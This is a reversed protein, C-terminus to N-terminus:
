EAPAAAAGSLESKITAATEALVSIFQREDLGLVDLADKCQAAFLQVNDKNIRGYADTMLAGLGVVAVLDPFQEAKSIDHHFRVAETLEAPLNWTDTLLYGVEPHAIGFEANELAIVERDPLSQDIHAYREPAVEALVARGIDHVLGAAFLGSVTRKGYVRGVIRAATACFLSRRWFAKYDFSKSRAFYDVVSSSLVISYIERLGLLRTAMEINDVRHTLGYAASNALSIVKAALAPDRAVIAAVTGATSTPDDMAERIQVVTEPLAPLQHIKRVLGVIGEFHIGSEAKQLAESPAVAVPAPREASPAVAQLPTPAATASPITREIVDGLGVKESPAYYRKLAVRIDGMSVLFPKVRLGTLQELQKLTSRDLPCAMGVTLDRGMKDLPLLEHKLAFEAPVLGIIERPISYNLLSISAMGPQKSLFNVFSKPSLYGLVILNEVLKGGDRKQVALAEDLQGPTIAGAEILLDGIRPLQLAQEQREVNERIEQGLPADSM